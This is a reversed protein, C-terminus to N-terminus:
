NRLRENTYFTFEKPTYQVCCFVQSTLNQTKFFALALKIVICIYNQYFRCLTDHLYHDCKKISKYIKSKLIKKM